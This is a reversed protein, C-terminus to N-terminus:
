NLIRSAGLALNSWMVVEFSTAKAELCILILVVLVHVFFKGIHHQMGDSNLISGDGEFVVINM